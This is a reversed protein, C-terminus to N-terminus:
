ITAVEKTAFFFSYILLSFAQFHPLPNRPMGCFFFFFFFARNKKRYKIRLNAVQM